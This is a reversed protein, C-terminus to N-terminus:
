EPKGKLASAAVKVVGVREATEFQRQKAHTPEVTGIAGCLPLGIRFRISDRRVDDEAVIIRKRGIAEGVVDPDAPLEIAGFCPAADNM